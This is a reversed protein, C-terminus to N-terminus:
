FSQLQYFGGLYNAGTISEDLANIVGLYIIAISFSHAVTVFPSRPWRKFTLGASAPRALSGWHPHRPRAHPENEPLGRQRPRHFHPRGTPLWFLPCDGESGRAGSRLCSWASRFRGTWAARGVRVRFWALNKRLGGAPESAQGTGGKSLGGNM